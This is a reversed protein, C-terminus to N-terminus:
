SRLQKWPHSVLRSGSSGVAEAAVQAMGAMLPESSQLQAALTAESLIDRTASALIPGAATVVKPMVQGPDSGPLIITSPHHNITVVKQQQLTAIVNHLRKIEERLATNEAQLNRNSLRLTQNDKVVEKTENKRKNRSRKAAMRNRELLEKKKDDEEATDAVVPRPKAPKRKKSEPLDIVLHHQPM